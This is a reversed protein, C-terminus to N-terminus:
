SKSIFVRIIQWLLKLMPSKQTETHSNAHDLYAGALGM